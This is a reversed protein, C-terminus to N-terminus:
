IDVARPEFQVANRSPAPSMWTEAKVKQDMLRSFRWSCRCLLDSAGIRGLVGWQQIDRGGEVDATYQFLYGKM